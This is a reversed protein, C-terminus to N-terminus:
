TVPGKLAVTWDWHEGIIEPSHTALLVDVGSLKVVKELDNVFEQQWTVHLSIEPEDILILSDPKVRFLLDYLLVVEHQEGSSLARLPLPAGNSGTFIFGHDRHVSVRKYSFRDNLITTFLEIRAALDDFGRLKEEMDSVYITLVSLKSPEITQPVDTLNGEPDLFGLTALRTRRKELEGLRSRLDEVPLPVVEIQQLLRVPFTRDLEQSRAAYDTLTVGIRAALDKAYEEVVLATEYASEQVSLRQTEILQVNMSKHLALLPEPAVERRTWHFHPDVGEKVLELLADPENERRYLILIHERLTSSKKEVRLESGDAFRVKFTAFPVAILPASEGSLLGRLMRLIATKGYGNLGHIITIREKMNLPIEHDFIGFLKAVSISRIRM